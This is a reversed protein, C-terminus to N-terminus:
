YLPEDVLEELSGDLKSDCLMGATLMLDFDSEPKQYLKKMRM